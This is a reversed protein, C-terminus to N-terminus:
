FGCHCSAWVSAFCLLLEWDSTGGPGFSALGALPPCASGSRRKVPLASTTHDSYQKRLVSNPFVRATTRVNRQLSLGLGGWYFFSVAASIVIPLPRNHLMPTPLNGKARFHWAVAQQLTNLMHEQILLFFWMGALCHFMYYNSAFKNSVLMSDEGEFTARPARHRLTRDHGHPAVRPVKTPLLSRNLLHEVPIAGVAPAPPHALSRAPPGCHLKRGGVAPAASCLEYSRSVAGM